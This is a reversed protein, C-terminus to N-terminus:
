WPTLRRAGDAAADIGNATLKRVTPPVEDINELRVTQVAPSNLDLTKGTRQRVIAEVQMQNLRAPEVEIRTMNRVSVTEPSLGSMGDPPLYIAGTSFDVAFAIVGPVFFLLLGVADLTVIAPDLRGSHFGRREPHLITGCSASQIALVGALLTAFFRRTRDETRPCFRM